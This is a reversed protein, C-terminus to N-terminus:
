EPCPSFYQPSSFRFLYSHIERHTPHSITSSSFLVFPLLAEQWTKEEGAGKGVYMDYLSWPPFNWNGLEPELFNQLSPLMNTVDLATTKLIHDLSGQPDVLGKLTQSILIIKMIISFYETGKESENKWSHPHKGSVMYCTSIDSSQHHSSHTGASNRM